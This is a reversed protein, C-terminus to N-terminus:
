KLNHYLYDKLHEFQTEEQILVMTFVSRVLSHNEKTKFNNM